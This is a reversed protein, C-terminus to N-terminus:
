KAGRQARIKEIVIAKSGGREIVKGTARVKEGAYSFTLTKAPLGLNAHNFISFLEGRFQM